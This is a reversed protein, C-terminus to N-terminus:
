STTVKDSIWSRLSRAVTMYATAVPLHLRRSKTITCVPKMEHIHNPIRMNISARVMHSELEENKVDAFKPKPQVVPPSCWTIAEGDSAKVFIGEMVGQDLWYKLPPKQLHYPVPRPKQAVPEADPEMELKVEITKGTSIEQFCGIGQFMDSYESLVAEISYGPIKM